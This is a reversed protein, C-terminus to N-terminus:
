NPIWKSIETHRMCLLCKVGAPPDKREIQNLYSQQSKSLLMDPLHNVNECCFTSGLDSCGLIWVGNRYASAGIKESGGHFHHQKERHDSSGVVRHVSPM